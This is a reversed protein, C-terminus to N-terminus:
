TLRKFVRWIRYGVQAVFAKLRSHTCVLRGLEIEYGGMSKKFERVGYEQGSRGAGGFDFLKLGNAVSWEIASWLTYEGIGLTSYDRDAANYWLYIVDKYTLFVGVGVLSEQLNVGVIRALGKEQLETIVSEFLSKPPMPVRIRDYTKIMLSYLEDLCDIKMLASSLGSKLAKRIGRRRNKHLLEWLRDMGAALDIHVNLHDIYEYRASESLHTLNNRKTLHRIETFVAKKRAEKNHEKLIAEILFKDEGRNIILPGGYVIIRSSFRRALVGPEEIRVGLMLAMIAKKEDLIATFIPEYRTSNLFVRYMEPTQFINGNENKIVFQSWALEDIELPDHIIYYGNTSKM